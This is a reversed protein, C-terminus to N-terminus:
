ASAATTISNLPRTPLSRAGGTSPTPNIDGEQASSSRHETVPSLLRSALRNPYPEARAADRRISSIVTAAINTAPIPMPTALESRTSQAV